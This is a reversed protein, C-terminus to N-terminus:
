HFILYNTKPPITQYLVQLPFIIMEFFMFIYNTVLYILNVFCKILVFCLIGFLCAIVINDIEINDYLNILYFLKNLLYLPYIFISLLFIACFLIIRPLIFLWYEPENQADIKENLIALLDSPHCYTEPEYETEFNMKIFAGM